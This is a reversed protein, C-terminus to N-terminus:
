RRYIRASGGGGSADVGVVQHIEAAAKGDTPLLPPGNAASAVADPSESIGDVATSAVASGTLRVASCKVLMAVVEALSEASVGAKDGDVPVAYM